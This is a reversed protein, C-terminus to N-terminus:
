TSFGRNARARSSRYKSLILLYVALSHGRMDDSHLM